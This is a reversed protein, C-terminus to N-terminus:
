FKMGVSFGVAKDYVFPSIFTETKKANKRLDSFHEKLYPYFLTALRASIIGIGVGAVVDSFWHKDNYIRMAAVTTALAYAGIGYWPSEDKYAQRVLEAGVFATATHGSPFSNLASGDPRMHPYTDKICLVSAGMLIHAMTAIVMRDVLSQNSKAGVFDLGLYAVAPIFQIYNDAHIKRTRMDDAANKIEMDLDQLGNISHALIGYGILTGPILLKLTEKRNHYLSDRRIRQSFSNLIIFVFVIFLLYKLM